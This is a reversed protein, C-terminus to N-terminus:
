PEFYETGDKGIFFEKGNLKVQSLGAFVPQHLIHSLVFDYKPPIVEKGSKDVFGRKDGSVVVALGDFFLGWREVADYRVPVVEKGFRDIFGFKGGSSVLAVEGHFFEVKEYKPPVVITKKEDSVGWLDGKRYPIFLPTPTPSPKPVPTPSAKPAAAPRPPRRRQADTQWFGALLTTVTLCLCLVSVLLPRYKRLSTHM